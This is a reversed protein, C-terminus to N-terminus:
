GKSESAQKESEIEKSVMESTVTTIGAFSASACVSDLVKVAKGPFHQNGPLRDSTEVCKSIAEDTIKVRHHGEYISKIGLLIQVTQKADPEPIDVVQFRRALARDPEIYKKYEEYTTAGICPFEGRALYPKLINEAGASGETSGMGLLTHIEDIFVIIRDANSTVEELLGELRKEFEGRYKTGSVVANLNLSIVRKNRFVQPVENKVIMTALGEVIATKGVGAKGVLLPNNSEMRSLVKLCELIEADRGIVPKIKNELVQKTLDTGFRELLETSTKGCIEKVTDFIPAIEPPLELNPALVIVFSNAQALPGPLSKVLSIMEAFEPGPLNERTLYYHFDELLYLISRRAGSQADSRIAGLVEWPSLRRQGFLRDDYVYNPANAMGPGPALNLRKLGESYTWQVPTLGLRSAVGIFDGILRRSDTYSAIALPKGKGTFLPSALLPVVAASRTVPALPAPLPEGEGQSADNEEDSEDFSSLDLWGFKFKKLKRQQDEASLALFSRSFFVFVDFEYPSPINWKRIDREAATIKNLVSVRYRKELYIVTSDIPSYFAFKIEGAINERILWELDKGLSERLGGQGQIIDYYRDLLAIDTQVQQILADRRGYVTNLVIPFRTEKRGTRQNAGEWGVTM